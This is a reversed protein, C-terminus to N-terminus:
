AIYPTLRGFTQMNVLDNMVINSYIDRIRAYSGEDSTENARVKPFGGFRLFRDFVDDADIDPTRVRGFTSASASRCRSFGCRSM